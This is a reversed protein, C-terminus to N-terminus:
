RHQQHNRPEATADQTIQCASQLPNTGEKAFDPLKARALKASEASAAPINAFFIVFKKSEPLHALAPHRIASGLWLPAVRLSAAGGHPGHELL